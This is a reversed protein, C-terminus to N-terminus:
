SKEPPPKVPPTDPEAPPDSVPPRKPQRPPEKIETDDPLKTSGCAAPFNM